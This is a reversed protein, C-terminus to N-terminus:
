IILCLLHVNNILMDKFIFLLVYPKNINFMM